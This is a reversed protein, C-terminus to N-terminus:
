TWRPPLGTAKSRTSAVRKPTAAISAAIAPSKPTITPAARCGLDDLNREALRQALGLQQVRRQILGRLQEEALRTRM